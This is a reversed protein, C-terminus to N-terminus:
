KFPGYITCELHLLSSVMTRFIDKFSIQKRFKELNYKLVPSTRYESKDRTQIIQVQIIDTITANILREM